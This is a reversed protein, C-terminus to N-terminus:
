WCALYFKTAFYDWFRGSLVEPRRMPSRRVPWKVFPLQMRIRQAKPCSYTLLPIIRGVSSGGFPIRRASSPASTKGMILLVPPFALQEVSSFIQFIAGERNQPLHGSYDGNIYGTLVQDAQLYMTKVRDTQSVGFILGTCLMLSM